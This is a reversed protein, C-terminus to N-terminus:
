RQPAAWRERIQRMLGAAAVRVRGAAAVAVARLELMAPQWRRWQALLARKAREKLLRGTRWVTSSRVHETLADKWPMVTDYAWTFWGIQMLAPQTLMFLRAVLATAVVKAAAFLLAALVLQGKAVLFLALFKLPLLLTSPLVFVVLAAYPPLRAIGYELQAWPRWRALRGLLDALPRWGWEEFVIVIALLLQLFGRLVPGAVSWFQRLAPGAARWARKAGLMLHKAAVRMQEPLQRGPTAGKGTEEMDDPTDRNAASHGHVNETSQTV